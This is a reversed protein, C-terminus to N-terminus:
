SWGRPAAMAEPEVLAPGQAVAEAAGAALVVSRAPRAPRRPVRDAAAVELDARPARAQQAQLARQDQLVAQDVAELPPRYLAAQSGVM